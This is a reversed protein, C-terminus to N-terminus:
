LVAWRLFLQRVRVQFGFAGGAGRESRGELELVVPLAADLDAVDERVDALADVVGRGDVPGLQEAGRSVDLHLDADALATEQEGGGRGPGVHMVETHLPGVLVQTDRLM